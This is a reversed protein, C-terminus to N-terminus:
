PVHKIAAIIEAEACRFDPDRVEGTTHERGCAVCFFALAHALKEREAPTVDIACPPACAEDYVPVFGRAKSAAGDKRKADKRSASKEAAKPPRRLYRLAM